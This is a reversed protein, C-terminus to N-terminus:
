VVSKRDIHLWDKASSVTKIFPNPYNFYGDCMVKIFDFDAERYLKIHEEVTQQGLDEDPSFHYWFGMPLKDVKQNQFSYLVRERKTM